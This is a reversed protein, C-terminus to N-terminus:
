MQDQRCIIERSMMQPRCTQRALDDAEVKTEHHPLQGRGVLKGRQQLRARGLMVTLALMPEVM